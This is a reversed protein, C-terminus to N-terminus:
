DTRSSPRRSARNRQSEDGRVRKGGLEVLLKAAAENHNSIALELPSDGYRDVANVNAGKAILYRLTQLDGKAAAGHLATRKYARDTASISVGHSVFGQVTAFDGRYAAYLLLDGAHQSAAMRGIFTREWFGEPMSGLFFLSLILGLSVWRAKSIHKKRIINVISLVAVIATWIILLVPFLFLLAGIDHALSFGVMQPGREWTWVTEEWILRGFLAATGLFFSAGSLRVWLPLSAAPVSYPTDVMTQSKVNRVHNIAYPNPPDRSHFRTFQPIVRVVSRSEGLHFEHEGSPYM